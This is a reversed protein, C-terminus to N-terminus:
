TCPCQYFFNCIVDNLLSINAATRIFDTKAVRHLSFLAINKNPRIEMCHYICLYIRGSRGSDKWVRKWINITELLTTNWVYAWCKVRKNGRTHTHTHTVWGDGSIPNLTKKCITSISSQNKIVSFALIFLSSRPPVFVQFLYSYNISGFSRFSSITIATKLFFLVSLTKLIIM